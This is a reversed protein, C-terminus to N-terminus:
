AVVQVVRITRAKGAEYTIAGKINMSHLYDAVANTSKLGFAKGIERVTPSYGHEAIFAAIFALMLAQRDTLPGDARMARPIAKLQASLGDTKM